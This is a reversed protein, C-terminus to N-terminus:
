EPSCRLHSNNLKEESFACVPFTISCYGRPATMGSRTSGWFGLRETTSRYQFMARKACNVPLREIGARVQELSGSQRALSETSTAAALSVIALVIACGKPAKM